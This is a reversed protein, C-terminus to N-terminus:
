ALAGTRRAARRRAHRERECIRCVRKPRGNRWRVATNAESYEHRAPCHTKSAQHHNGSEVKHLQIESLTAHRLNALSADARDGLHQVQMGQPCPGLFAEAVLLHVRISRRRGHRSLEVQPYGESTSHRLVRGSAWRTEGGPAKVRRPLSRVRGHDSVEYAGEYGPVPRWQEPM